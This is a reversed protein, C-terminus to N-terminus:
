LNANDSTPKIKQFTSIFKNNFTMTFSFSKIFATIEREVNDDNITAVKM